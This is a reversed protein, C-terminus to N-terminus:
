KALYSGKAIVIFNPRNVRVKIQKREGIKDADSPTFKLYYKVRLEQAFKSDDVNEFLSGRGGSLLILDDLFHKGIEYANKASEYSQIPLKGLIIRSLPNNTNNSQSKRNQEFSDVYIIFVPIDSKEATELSKAYDSSRSTTDVGDTILIVATREESYEIHKEFLRQIAEYLSTGNGFNTKKIAKNIIKKDNTFETKVKFGVDFVAVMIKDQPNLTEVFKLAYDQLETIKYVTSPSTDLLLIINLPQPKNELSFDEVKRDGVFLQFDSKNLDTVVNGKEDAVTVPIFVSRENNLDNKSKEQKNNAKSKKEKKAKDAPFETPKYPVSESYAKSNQENEVTTQSHANSFFILVYFM